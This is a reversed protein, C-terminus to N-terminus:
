LGLELDLKFGLPKKQNKLRYSLLINHKAYKLHNIMLKEALDANHSKIANLIAQHEEAATIALGRKQAVYLSYKGIDYISAEYANFMQSLVKNDAIKLLNSHFSTETEYDINGNELQMKMKDICKQLNAIEEETAKEAARRVIFRELLERVDLLDILSKYEVDTIEEFHIMNETINMKKFVRKRGKQELYGINELNEIAERIVTRSVGYEDALKRESPLEDGELYSGLHFANILGISVKESLKPKNIRRSTMKAVYKDSKGM